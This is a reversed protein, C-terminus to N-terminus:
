LKKRFCPFIPFMEMSEQLNVILFFDVTYVCLSSRSVSVNRSISKQVSHVVTHVTCLCCVFCICGSVACQLCKELNIVMTYKTNEKHRSTILAM